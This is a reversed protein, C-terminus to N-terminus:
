RRARRLRSLPGATVGFRRAFVGEPLAQRGHHRHYRYARIVKGMHRAALAEKINTDEWFEAPVDLPAAFRDRSVAQCAACYGATNDRALRTHCRHCRRERQVTM